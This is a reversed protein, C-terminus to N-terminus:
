TKSTFDRNSVNVGGRKVRKRISSNKLAEIILENNEFTNEKGKLFQIAEFICGLQKQSNNCTRNQSISAFM